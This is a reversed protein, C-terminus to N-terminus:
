SVYKLGEPVSFHAACILFMMATFFVVTLLLVMYVIRRETTLHMFNCVVLGGKVVAIILAAIIGITIGSRFNSVLVTAVTLALLGGFVAMYKQAERKIDHVEGSM